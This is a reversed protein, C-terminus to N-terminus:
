RIPKPQYLTDPKYPQNPKANRAQLTLQTQPKDLPPTEPKCRTARSRKCERTVIFEQIKCHVPRRPSQPFLVTNASFSRRAVARATSDGPADEADRLWVGQVDRFAM